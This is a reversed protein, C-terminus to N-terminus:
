YSYYWEGGSEPFTYSFVFRGIDTDIYGSYTVYWYEYSFLTASVTYRYSEQPALDFTLTTDNGANGMNGWLTANLQCHITADYDTPGAVEVSLTLKNTDQDYSPEMTINLSDLHFIANRDLMFMVSHGSIWDLVPYIMYYGASAVVYGPTPSYRDVPYTGNWSLKLPGDTSSFTSFSVVPGYQDWSPVRSFLSENVLVENPDVDDPIRVIHVGENGYNYFDISALGTGVFEVDPTLSYLQFTVDEGFSYSPKDAKASVYAVKSEKTANVVFSALVITILFIACIIVALFKRQLRM